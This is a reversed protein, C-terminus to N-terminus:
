ILVAGCVWVWVSLLWSSIERSLFRLFIWSLLSFWVLALLLPFALAPLFAQAERLLARRTMLLKVKVAAHLQRELVLELAGVLFQGDEEVRRGLAPRSRFTPHRPLGPTRAEVMPVDAPHLITKRIMEHNPVSCGGAIALDFHAIAPPALNVAPMDVAIIQVVNREANAQYAIEIAVLWRARLELRTFFEDAVQSLTAAFDVPAIDGHPRM